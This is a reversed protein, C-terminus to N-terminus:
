FLRVLRRMLDLPGDQIFAYSYLLVFTLCVAGRTKGLYVVRLLLLLILLICGALALYVVIFQPRLDHLRLLLGGKQPSILLFVFYVSTIATWAVTEVCRSVANGPPLGCARADRRGLWLWLAAAGLVPLAFSILIEITRM